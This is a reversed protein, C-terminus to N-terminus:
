LLRCACGGGPQSADQQGRDLANYYGDVVHVYGWGLYQTWANSGDANKLLTLLLQLSPLKWYGKVSYYGLGYAYSVFLAAAALAPASFSTGYGEFFSQLDDSIPVRHGPMVFDLALADGENNSGFSECFPLVSADQCENPHDKADQAAGTYYGKKSYYDWDYWKGVDKHDISGVSYVEQLYNPFQNTEMIDGTNGSAAIMFVNNAYLTSVINEIDQDVTIFQALSTTIIRVNLQSYNNEIWRWLDIDYLDFGADLADVFVVKAKRAITAIMGLVNIGHDQGPVYNLDADTYASLDDVGSGGIERYDGNSDKTVFKVIDLYMGGPNSTNEIALWQNISLGRDIVLITGKYDGDAPVLGTPCGIFDFLKDNCSAVDQISISNGYFIANSMFGMDVGANVAFNLSPNIMLVM